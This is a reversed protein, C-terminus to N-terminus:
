EKYPFGNGWQTHVSHSSNTKLHSIQMRQDTRCPVYWVIYTHIYAHRGTHKGVLSQFPTHVYMSTRIHTQRRTHWTPTILARPLTATLRLNIIHELPYQTHNSTISVCVCAYVCVCVCVFMSPMKGVIAPAM